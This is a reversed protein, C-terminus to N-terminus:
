IVLLEGKTNPPQQILTPISPFKIPSLQSNKKPLFFPASKLNGKKFMKNPLSIIAQNQKTLPGLIYFTNLNIIKPNKFIKKLLFIPLKSTKFKIEPLNQVLFFFQHTHPIGKIIKLPIETIFTFLM